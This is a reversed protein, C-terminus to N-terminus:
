PASPDAPPASQNYPTLGTVGVITASSYAPMTGATVPTPAPNINVMPATPAAVLPTGPPPTNLLLTELTGSHGNIRKENQRSKIFAFFGLVSGALITLPAFLSNVAQIWAAANHSFQDPSM